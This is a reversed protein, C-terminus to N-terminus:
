VAPSMFYDISRKGFVGAAVALLALSFGIMGGRYESPIAAELSKDAVAVAAHRGGRVDTVQQPFLQSLGNPLLRPDAESEVRCWMQGDATQAVMGSPKEQVIRYTIRRGSPSNVSLKEPSLEGLKATDRYATNQERLFKLTEAYKEANMDSSLVRLDKVSVMDSSNKDTAVDTGDPRSVALGLLTSGGCLAVSGLVLALPLKTLVLSVLSFLKRGAAWLVWLGIVAGLVYSVPLNMSSVTSLFEFM